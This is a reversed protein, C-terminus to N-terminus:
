ANINNQRNKSQTREVHQPRWYFFSLKEINKKAKEHEKKTKEHENKTKETKKKTREKKMKPQIIVTLKNLFLKVVLVTSYM